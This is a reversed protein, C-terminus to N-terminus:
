MAGIRDECHVVSPQDLEQAGGPLTPLPGPVGDIRPLVPDDGVDCRMGPQQAVDLRQITEGAASVPRYANSVM